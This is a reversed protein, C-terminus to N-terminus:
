EGIMIINQYNQGFTDNIIYMTKTYRDIQKM